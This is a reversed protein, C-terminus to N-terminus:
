LDLYGGHESLSPITLRLNQLNQGMDVLNLGRHADLFLEQGEEEGFRM